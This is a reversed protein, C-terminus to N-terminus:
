PEKAIPPAVANDLLYFCVVFGAAAIFGAFWLPATLGYKSLSGGIVPGIIFSSTVCLGVYSMYRPKEETPVKMGIYTLAVPISNGTLGALVRAGLLTPYNWALAQLFFTISSGAVSCLLGYRTGFATAIKGIIIGGPIMAGQYAAIMYRRM